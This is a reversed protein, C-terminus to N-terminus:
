QYQCKFEGPPAFKQDLNQGQGISGLPTSRMKLKQGMLLYAILEIMIASQIGSIDRWIVRMTEIPRRRYGCRSRIDDRKTWILDTLGIHVSVFM